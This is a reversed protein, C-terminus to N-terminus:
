FALADHRPRPALLGRHRPASRRGDRRWWPGAATGGRPWGRCRGERTAVAADGVADGDPLAAPDAHPVAGAGEGPALFAFARAAVVPLPPFALQGLSRRAARLRGPRTATGRSRRRVRGCRGSTTGGTRRRARRRPLPARHASLEVLREGGDLLFQGVDGLVLGAFDFADGLFALGVAIVVLVG